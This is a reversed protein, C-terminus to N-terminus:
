HRYPMSNQSLTVGIDIRTSTSAATKTFKESSGLHGHVVMRMADRGWTVGLRWAEVVEGGVLQLLLSDGIACVCACVVV